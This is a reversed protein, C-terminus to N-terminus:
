SYSIINEIDEQLETLADPFCFATVNNEKAVALLNEILHHLSKLVPKVKIALRRQGSEKGDSEAQDLDDQSYGLELNETSNLLSEIQALSVSEKYYRMREHLYKLEKVLKGHENIGNFDALATNVIKLPQTM